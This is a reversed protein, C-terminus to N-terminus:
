FSGLYQVAHFDWSLGNMQQLHVYGWITLLILDLFQQKAPNNILQYILYKAIGWEPTGSCYDKLTSFDLVQFM